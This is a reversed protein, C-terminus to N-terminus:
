RGHPPGLYPFDALLDKHPGVKDGQVKGNTLIPLFVDIVDDTLLRGNGPYSAPRGPDYTLIDPLLKEAARKADASLYGGAHELEHAFVAVFRADDKPEAALYADRAEGALFVTQTPRAGREVQVWEGGPGGVQVVVRMWLGVPGGGLAANPLDLVLSYVNKDAFYDDGTFALDRLAGQVDFFFPDSRRGVFVRHGAAETARAEPGTSVVIGEAILRGEDGMRAAQAGEARRLTATQSGGQSRSVRLRYAIDAVADGNTDIRLEYVAEPAYPEAVTAAPTKVEHSPHADMVLISRSADGPKPFAFLDTLDLRADGRPFGVNPGSYHHSM